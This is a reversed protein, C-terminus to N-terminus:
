FSYSGSIGVMRPEGFQFYPETIYGNRPNNGFSGFARVAYDEDTLNRGWLALEWSGTSYGLRANYLEYAESQVDHRDSFFYDDKGEAELQVYFGAPLSYRAGLAFQYNPAQAQDRGSLDQGDPNIYDDYETELWGLNAWVLLADTALWSVELEAGYNEGADANTVYDVFRTSGNDEPILFSGKVQQDERDMFFLALRAQLTNDLSSLKVGLEYNLLTEEDFQTLSQLGAEIQEDGSSGLSSLIESNLGDGKYGRSVSAYILGDDTLAYELALRGGWLDKDPNYSIQNSDSYDTSRNEFRLGYSLTWDANLATDFQAFVALTETENDSNFPAPEFTYTRDLTEDDLLYYLGTVWETSGGFLRSQENSLFRVEASTSDRDRLYRDFATYGDVDFGDFVWDVDFSYETDTDAYSLLARMDFANFSSSLVLGLAATQQEDRGPEDALSDRSNDLTFADYGNDVDLWSLNVDLTHNDAIAWRLKGRLTLEDREGTDDRNLFDNDMHGDSNFQQAALRYGLTDSLPGSTVAGLSYSDYNGASAEVRGYAEDTPDQTRINILGALANAGHLTGQPGRLVEVQSVDFLTGVTGIGSFDIDDILLGVSANLPALFQSRDGVGRIQFFRSRSSGSTSNVNPAMSLIEELHQAGRSSIMETTLVSTSAAQQQLDISRMEATVLIEPLISPNPQDEGRAQTAIGTALMPLLLLPRTLSFFTSHSTM